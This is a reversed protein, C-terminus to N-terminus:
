IRVFIRQRYMGYAILWFALLVTASRVTPGYDGDFLTQGFHIQLQGAVFPKMLQAMMYFAISNVGVVVMPFAWRRFGAVDILGYFLALLLSTWGTSYVVWSPTWIRKVIPCIARDLGWGLALCAVGALVLWGVKAMPRAGSRLLGGALVGALMTAISPVFNLTAYGGENVVFPSGSPRPFLNLFVGDFAAAPNTDRAWHALFGTLAGAEPSDGGPYGSGPLPYLAFLLWYGVLIAVLAAFQVRASRGLLLFVFPYGLGIQALVNTFVWNTQRNWASALFVGLLVLVTSRILAHGFQGGQGEGRATRNAYSFPMAVGVIFMFSPQILDWSSCGRWSVHETHFSLAEWLRDGPHLQAAKGLALGGSAMALMVFGRYADISVLRDGPGTVQLVSM